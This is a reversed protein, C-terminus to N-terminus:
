TLTSSLITVETSTLNRGLKLKLIDRIYVPGILNLKGDSNFINVSSPTYKFVGNEIWCIPDSDHLANATNLQLSEAASTGFLIGRPNAGSYSFRPQNTTIAHANGDRWVATTAYNRIFIADGIGSHILDHTLPMYFTHARLMDVPLNNLKSVIV